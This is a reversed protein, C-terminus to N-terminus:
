DASGPPLVAAPTLPGQEPSPAPTRSAPAGGDHKFGTLVFDRHIFPSSNPNYIEETSAVECWTVPSFAIERHIKGSWRYLPSRGNYWGRWELSLVEIRGAPVTRTEWAGARADLSETRSTGPQGPLEVEQSALRMGPQLPYIRRPYPRGFKIGDREIVNLDDDYAVQGDTLDGTDRTVLVRHTVRMTIRGPTVSTVVIHREAIKEKNRLNDLIDYTCEDGLRPSPREISQALCVIPLACLALLSTNRM